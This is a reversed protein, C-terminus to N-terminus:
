KILSKALFHYISFSMTKIDDNEFALNDYELDNLLEEKLYGDILPPYVYDQIGTQFALLTIAACNIKMYIAWRDERKSWHPIAMRAMRELASEVSEIQKVKEKEMKIKILVDNSETNTIIVEMMFKALSTIYHINEVTKTYRTPSYKRIGNHQLYQTLKDKDWVVSRQQDPLGYYRYYYYKIKIFLQSPDRPIEKNMKVLINKYKPLSGRGFGPFGMLYAAVLLLTTMIECSPPQGNKMDEFLSSGIWDYALEFDKMGNGTLEIPNFHGIIRRYHRFNNALFLFKNAFKVYYPTMEAKNSPTNGSGKVFGADKLYRGLIEETWPKSTDVGKVDIVNGYNYIHNHEDNIGVVLTGPEVYAVKTKRKKKKKKNNNNKKKNKEEEEEKEETSKFTTTSTSTTQQSELHDDDNIQLKDIEVRDGDNDEEKEKEKSTDRIELKNMTVVISLVLRFHWFFSQCQPVHWHLIAIRGLKELASEITEPERVKEKEMRIKAQSRSSTNTIIVEMMLKALLKSGIWTYVTDFDTLADGTIKIPLFFEGNKRKEGFNNALFLSNDAFKIFYPIMEVKNCETNGSGQVYGAANLYQTLIEETWPISTEVRGDIVNGYNYIHNHEDNIGEVITGPEVYESSNKKKNKNKNKKKKKEGEEKTLSNEIM